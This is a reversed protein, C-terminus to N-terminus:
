SRIENMLAKHLLMLDNSTQRLRGMLTVAIHKLIPLAWEPHLNSYEMFAARSLVFCTCETETMVTASRSESEVLGGEGLAPTMKHNLIVVKYLDGDPTKKYVCASGEIIIFLEDGTKGEEILTHGQPFKKVVMIKALEALADQNNKLGSLISVRSLIQPDINQNM